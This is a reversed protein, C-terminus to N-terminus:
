IQDKDDKTNGHFLTQIESKPARVRSYGPWSGFKRQCWLDFFTSLNLVLWGCVAIVLMVALIELLEKM